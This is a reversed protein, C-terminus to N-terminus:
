KKRASVKEDGKEDDSEAAVPEAAVPSVAQARLFRYEDDPLEVQGTLHPLARAGPLQAVLRAVAGKDQSARVNATVLEGDNLQAEIDLTGDARLRASLIRVQAM